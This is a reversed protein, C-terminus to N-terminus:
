KESKAAKAQKNEILNKAIEATVEYTKGAELHQKKGKPAEVGIIKVKESKAM